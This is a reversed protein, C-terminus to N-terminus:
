SENATSDDPVMRIIGQISYPQLIQWNARPSPHVLRNCYKFKVIQTGFNENKSRINPDTKINVM